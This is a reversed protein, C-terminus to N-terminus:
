KAGRLLPTLRHHNITTLGLRARPTKHAVAWTELLGHDRLDQLGRQLTDASVGYWGAARETVLTFTPKQALAILLVAKGALSLEKHWRGTFYALPFGFFGRPEGRPRSYADGSGDEKSMYVKRMRHHRESHVLKKGELWSWNKSVTTESAPTQRMDLARAWAMAPMAVDWPEASATCHLLMLQDLAQPRREGVFWCLPAEGGEGTPDQLFSRRIPTVKRRRQRGAGLLDELTEDPTSAGESPGDVGDEVGASAGNKALEAM